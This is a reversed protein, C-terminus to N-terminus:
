IHRFAYPFNYDCGHNRIRYDKASKSKKEFRKNM